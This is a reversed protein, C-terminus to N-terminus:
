VCVIEWRLEAEAVGPADVHNEVLRGIGLSAVGSEVVLSGLRMAEGAELFAPYSASDRREMVMEM